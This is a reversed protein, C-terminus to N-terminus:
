RTLKVLVGIVHDLKADIGAPRRALGIAEAIALCAVTERAEGLAIEYKSRRMAGRHGSGEAMNLAVSRSCRALQDALGRDRRAIDRLMPQLMQIVEISVNQIVLM